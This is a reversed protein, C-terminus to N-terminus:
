VLAEPSSSGSHTFCFARHLAGGVLVLVVLCVCFHSARSRSCVVPVSMVDSARFCSLKRVGTTVDLFPICKVQLLAHYLPHVFFDAAVQSPLHPCPYHTLDPPIPTLHCAAACLLASLLMSPISTLSTLSFYANSLAQLLQQPFASARVPTNSHTANLARQSNCRCKCKTVPQCLPM